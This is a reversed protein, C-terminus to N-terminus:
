ARPVEQDVDAPATRASAAAAPVEMTFVTGSDAASDVWGGAAEAIRRVLALGMGRGAAGAPKSSWGEEFMHAAAEQAPGPGGDAVQVMLGAEDSAVDVDVWRGPGEAEAAAELANDTLNGVVTLLDLPALPIPAQLRVHHTLTLGAERAQAGKADLLASLVDADADGASRGHRSLVAAAAENRGSEVLALATHLQNAHEHTQARLAATLTRAGTLEDGLRRLDTRDHLTLVVTGDPTAEVGERAAAAVAAPDATRPRRLGRGPAPLGVRHRRIALVRGHVRAVADEGDAEALADHVPEPLRDLPHPGAQLLATAAANALRIRGDPALVILGVDVADMAAEDLLFHEALEEPGRGLTVRRLYRDLTWAVLLGALAALACTGLIRPLQAGALVEVDSVPTGLAVVGIVEGTTPDEVPALARVSRGASGTTSVETWSHGDLAATLDEPYPHGTQAPDWSVARVGRTDMVSMWAVGAAHTWDPVTRQLRDAGDPTRLAHVVADERAVLATAGALHRAEADLAMERAQLFSSWGAFLAIVAVVLVHVVAIRRAISWPHRM